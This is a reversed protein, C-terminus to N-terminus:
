TINISNMSRTQTRMHIRTYQDFVCNVRSLPVFFSAASFNKHLTKKNCAIFEPVLDTKTPVRPRKTMNSVFDDLAPRCNDYAQVISPTRRPSYHTNVIVVHLLLLAEEIGWFARLVIEVTYVTYFVKKKQLPILRHYHPSM